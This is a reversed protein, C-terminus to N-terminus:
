EKQIKNGSEEKSSRKLILYKKNSFVNAYNDFGDKKLENLNVQAYNPLRDTVIFYEIDLTDLLEALQEHTVKKFNYYEINKYSYIKYSDIENFIFEWPALVSVGEPINIAIQNHEKKHDFNVRYQYKFMQTNAYVHFALVFVFLMSVWVKKRIIAQSIGISIVIVIFPLYYILYKEALYGGFINLTIILILLYRLIEPIQKKLTKYFILLSLFFFISVSQVRLSWFFRQHESLLGTIRKVFFNTDSNYENSPWNQLQFIFGKAVEPDLFDFFFLISVLFTVISYKILARYRRYSLLYIFGTIAFVNGNPHVLFSTGALVGAWFVYKDINQTISKHLFVFSSFGLLLMPIEPRFIFTQDIMIPTTILFFLPLLINKNTAKNNKLFNYFVYLFGAYTILTFIKMPVLNWGFLWIIASGIFIYLKYYVYVRNDFDLTLPMSKLRVVGETLLYYAEEAFWNEDTHVYRNILSLIFATSFLGLFVLLSKPAFIYKLINNLHHGIKKNM